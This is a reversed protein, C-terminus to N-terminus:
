IESTRWDIKCAEETLVHFRCVDNSIFWRYATEMEDNKQELERRYSLHSQKQADYTKIQDEM